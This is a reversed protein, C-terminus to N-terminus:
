YPGLRFVKHLDKFGEQTVKLGALHNAFELRRPFDWDKSRYILGYLLGAIFTDGAGITDVIQESTHAPIHAFNGTKPELAAAGEDGWTCCLLSARRTQPMQKRLCEEATTYGNSQAWGKSYIVVDGAEALKQLGLRGPKEVEVSVLAEPFRSRIHHICEITVGPARGEFHFWPVESAAHFPEIASAFEDRTMEPLENYNVITRSGSAQSMIIYSSAPESFQERYICNKIDVLIGLGEQIKNSSVSSLSPLVSILNLMSGETRPGHQLLQGLVELTNPCNGGRRRCLSSSRLKEDEGPYHPVTLITDIYCAGIAVLTM